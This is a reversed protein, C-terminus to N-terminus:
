DTHRKRLPRQKLPLFSLSRIQKHQNLCVNVHGKKGTTFIFEHYITDNSLSTTVTVNISTGQVELGFTPPKQLNYYNGYLFGARLLYKSHKELPLNYCNKPGSPFSRLTKMEDRITSISVLKKEGTQIYSDDTEWTKGISGDYFTNAAGCDVM